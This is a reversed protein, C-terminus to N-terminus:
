RPPAEEPCGLGLDRGGWQSGLARQRAGAAHGCPAPVCVPRCSFVPLHPASPPAPAEHSASLVTQSSSSALPMGWPLTM